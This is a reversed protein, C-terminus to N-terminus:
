IFDPPHKMSDMETFFTLIGQQLKMQAMKMAIIKQETLEAGVIAAGSGGAGAAPTDMLSVPAAGLELAARSTEDGAVPLPLPISM